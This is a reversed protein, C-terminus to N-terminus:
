GEPEGVSGSYVLVGQSAFEGVLHPIEMREGVLNSVLERRHDVHQVGTSAGSCGELSDQLFIWVGFGLARHLGEGFGEGLLGKERREPTAHDEVDAYVAGRPVAFSILFASSTFVLIDVARLATFVLVGERHGLGSAVVLKVRLSPREMAVKIFLKETNVAVVDELSWAGIQRHGGVLEGAERLRGLEGFDGSHQFRSVTLDVLDL